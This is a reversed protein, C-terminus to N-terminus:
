PSVPISLTIQTGFGYRSIISLDGNLQVARAKMNRLGNGVTQSEPDFGVGQDFIELILKGGSTTMKISAEIARSYKAVNNISEKFILYFDKRKDIPLGISNCSDDVILTFPIHAAELIESAYQRMRIVIMEMKDNKPNISWVIDGMLEMAQRSASSITQFLDGAKKEDPASRTAMSSIM